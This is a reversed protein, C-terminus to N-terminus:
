KEKELAVIWCGLMQSLKKVEEMAKERNKGRKRKAAAYMDLVLDSTVKTKIIGRAAENM